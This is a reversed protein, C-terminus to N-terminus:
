TRAQESADPLIPADHATWDHEAHCDMCPTVHNVLYEGRALRAPTSDFKRATLTRAQPGIFPRWGITFTIGAALVAALGAIVWVLIKGFKKM